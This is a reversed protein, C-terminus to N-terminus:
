SPLQKQYKKMEPSAAMNLLCEWGEELNQVHGKQIGVTNTKKQHPPSYYFNKLTKWSQSYSKFFKLALSSPFFIWNEIQVRYIDVM